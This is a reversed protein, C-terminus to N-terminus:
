RIFHLMWQWHINCNILYALNFPKSQLLFILLRFVTQNTRPYPGTIRIGASVMRLKEAHIAVIWRWAPSRPRAASIYAYLKM